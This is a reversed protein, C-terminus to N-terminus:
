IQLTPQCVLSRSSGIICTLDLPLRHLIQEQKPLSTEKNLEPSQSISHPGDVNHLVIQKELNVSKLTLSMLLVSWASVCFLNDYDM